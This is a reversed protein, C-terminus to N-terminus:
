QHASLLRLHDQRASLRGIRQFSPSQLTDSVLLSNGSIRRFTSTAFYASIARRRGMSGITVRLAKLGRSILTRRSLCASNARSNSIKSPCRVLWNLSKARRSRKQSASTSIARFKWTTHIAFKNGINGRLRKADEWIPLAVREADYLNEHRMGSVFAVGRPPSPPLHGSPVSLFITPRLSSLLATTIAM